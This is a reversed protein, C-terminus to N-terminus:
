EKLIKEPLPIEWCGNMAGYPCAFKRFAKMTVCTDSHDPDLHVVLGRSDFKLPGVFSVEYSGSPGVVARAIPEDLQDCTNALYIKVIAGDKIAAPSTGRVLYTADCGAFCVGGLFISLARVLNLNRSM